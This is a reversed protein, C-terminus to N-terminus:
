LILSLTGLNRPSASHLTKAILHADIYLTNASTNADSAFAIPPDTSRIVDGVSIAAEARLLHLFASLRTEQSETCSGFGSFAELSLHPMVAAHKSVIQLFTSFLAHREAAAVRFRFLPHPRLLLLWIPLGISCLLTETPSRDSIGTSLLPLAITVTAVSEEAAAIWQHSWSMAIHRASSITRRIQDYSCLSIRHRTTACSTPHTADTDFADDALLHWAHSAHMLIALQVSQLSFQLQLIASRVDSCPLQAQKLIHRVIYQRLSQPLSFQFRAQTSPSQRELITLPAGGGWEHFHIWGLRLLDTLCDHSTISADIDDLQLISQFSADLAALLISITSQCFCSRFDLMSFHYLLMQHRPRLGSFLHSFIIEFNLEGSSEVNSLDSRSMLALHILSANGQCANFIATDSVLEANSASSSICAAHSVALVNHIFCLPTQITSRAFLSLSAPRWTAPQYALAAIEQAVSESDCCAIILCGPLPPALIFVEAANSIHDLILVGGGHPGQNFLSLYQRRLDSYPIQLPRLPAPPTFGTPVYSSSDTSIIRARPPTEFHSASRSRSRSRAAYANDFPIVSVHSPSTTSAHIESSACSLLEPALFSKMADDTWALGGTPIQLGSPFSESLWVRAENAASV